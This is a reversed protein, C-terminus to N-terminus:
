NHIQGQPVVLVLPNVGHGPFSNPGYKSINLAILLGKFGNSAIQLWKIDNLSLILPKRTSTM